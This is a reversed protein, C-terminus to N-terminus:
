NIHGSPTEDGDSPSKRFLFAFPALLVKRFFVGGTLVAAVVIQIVMAGTAPDIYALIM